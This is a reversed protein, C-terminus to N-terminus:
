RRGLVRAELTMLPSGARGNLSGAFGDLVQDVGSEGGQLEGCLIASYGNRLKCRPNGSGSRDVEARATQLAGTVLALPRSFSAALSDIIDKNRLVATGGIM